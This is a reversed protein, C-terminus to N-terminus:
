TCDGQEEGPCSPDISSVQPPCEPSTTTLGQHSGESGTQRRQSYNGVFGRATILS